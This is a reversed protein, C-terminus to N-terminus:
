SFVRYRGSKVLRANIRTENREGWIMIFRRKTVIICRM